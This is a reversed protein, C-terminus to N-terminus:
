PRGELLKTVKDRVPDPWPEPRGDPGVCVLTQEARFRTEAACAAQSQLAMSTRGIRMLTLDLHLLDGHRSPADFRVEIAATPVSRDKHIEEFPWGLVADFMAEIADNIMEFYRPYFVMGAPDCYKFTVKQPMRFHM